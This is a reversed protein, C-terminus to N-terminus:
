GGRNNSKERALRIVVTYEGSFSVGDIDGNLILTVEERNDPEPFIVIDTVPFHVVLDDFGDSNVGNGSLENGKVLNNDPDGDLLIGAANGTLVNEDASTTDGITNDDSDGQLRVGHAHNSATTGEVLNGSSGVVGM